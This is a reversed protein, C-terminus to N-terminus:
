NVLLISGTKTILQSDPFDKSRFSIVYAYLMPALKVGKFTGDWRTEPNNSQFILEGWRNYIKLDFDIIHASPIELVDNFTDNNATFVQPVFLRPECGDKLETQDTNPCKSGNEFVNNILVKYVGGANATITATAEGSNWSYSPNVLNTAKPDLIADKGEIICAYSEDSLNLQPTPKITILDKVVIEKCEERLANNILPNNIVNSAPSESYVKATLTVEYVGAKKYIHSVKTGTKKDSGDGFDWTLESKMPSCVGQSEFITPSGECNGLYTGSLGDGAQNKKAHAINPLGYASNGGVNVGLNRNISMYGVINAYQSPNSSTINQNGDTIYPIFDSGDIAMYIFKMGSGDIPGTQLAGFAFTKSQDILKKSAAIAVSDGVTLSLQYLYSSIGKSPSGKLTVYIKKENESFEIGYIEPPASIGLDIIQAKNNLEGNDPNRNILQIYNKGNQSFVVGLIKGSGSLRMYGIKDGKEGYVKGISQVKEKIGTSDISQVIYQNSNNIHTYVFFGKEDTKKVSILQESTNLSIPINKEIIAGKGNNRRSDIVSYSLLGTSKDLSYLYYYHHSCEYCSSKPVFAASQVATNTGNVESNSYPPIAALLNDEKDYILNGDTYYLVNGWGDFVMAAGEPTKLPNSSSAEVPLYNPFDTNTGTGFLEGTESLSDVETAGTFDAKFELTAGNGFYWKEAGQSPPEQMCFTVNIKATLSCGGNASFVEVSYCGSKTVEITQTTEGNPYWLYSVNPPAVTNQYPNLKLSKGDCITTDLSVKKFFIPQQPRTEIEVQKKITESVGDISHTLSITYIGPSKYQHNGKQTNVITGDGMEWKWDKAKPNTDFFYTPENCISNPKKSEPSPPIEFVCRKGGIYQGLSDVTTVVCLIVLLFIRFNNDISRKM